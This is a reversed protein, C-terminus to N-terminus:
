FSRTLAQWFATTSDALRTFFTSKQERRIEELTEEMRTLRSQLHISREEANMFWRGMEELLKQQKEMRSQICLFEESPEEAPLNPHRAAAPLNEEKQAPEEKTEQPSMQEKLAEREERVKDLIQEQKLGDKILTKIMVFTKVDVESFVLSNYYGRKPTLIEDYGKLYNRLTRVTIGTLDAVEQITYEKKGSVRWYNRNRIDFWRM